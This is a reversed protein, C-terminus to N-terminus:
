EKVQRRYSRLADTDLLMGRAQMNIVETQLPEMVTTAYDYNKRHKLEDMLPKVLRATQYADWCNYIGLTEDPLRLFLHDTNVAYKSAM